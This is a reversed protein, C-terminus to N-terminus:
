QATHLNFKADQYVTIGSSNDLVSFWRQDTHIYVEHLEVLHYAGSSKVRSKARQICRQLTEGKKVTRTLVKVEHGNEGFVSFHLDVKIYKKDDLILVQFRNDVKVKSM